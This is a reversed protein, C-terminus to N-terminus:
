QSLRWTCERAMGHYRYGKEVLDYKALNTLDNYVKRIHHYADHCSRPVRGAVEATTSWESTVAKLTERQSM